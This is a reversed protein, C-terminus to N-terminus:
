EEREWEDIRGWAEANQREWAEFESQMEPPIAGAPLTIEVEAGEPLPPDGLPV